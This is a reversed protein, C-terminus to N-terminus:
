EEEDIVEVYEFNDFLAVVRDNESDVIELFATGGCNGTKESLINWSDASPYVHESVRDGEKNFRSTVVKVGM